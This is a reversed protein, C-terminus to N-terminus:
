RAKPAVSVGRIGNKEITKAVFGSAKVDEVFDRLYKAAADRGKLTGVAQQVVTFRGDLIRTGPHCFLDISANPGPARVLKARKLNRTLFLDYASKDSVSIRVGDRDVDGITRLPSGAPVLYTTDIELYAATFDIEGARDPDSGLFGVDWARTKAGDALGGASNYSVIEMPVNLRRALERALDVAIGGPNGKADKSTLLVNGFNIGVRLKGAPAMQSAITSSVQQAGGTLTLGTIGLLVFAIRVM